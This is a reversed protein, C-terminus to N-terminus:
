GAFTRNLGTRLLIYAATVPVLVDLIIVFALLFLYFSRDGMSGYKCNDPIMGRMSVIGDYSEAM